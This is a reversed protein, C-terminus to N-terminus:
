VLRAYMLAGFEDIFDLKQDFSLKKWITPRHKKVIDGALLVHACLASMGGAGIYVYSDTYKKLSQINRKKWIVYKKEEM